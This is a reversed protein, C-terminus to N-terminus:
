YNIGSQLVQALLVVHLIHLGPNIYSKPVHKSQPFRIFNQLWHKLLVYHIYHM